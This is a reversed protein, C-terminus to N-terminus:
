ELPVPFYECGLDNQLLSATEKENWSRLVIFSAWEPVNDSSFIFSLGESIGYVVGFAAAGAGLVVWGPPGAVVGITTLAMMTGGAALAGGGAGIVLGAQGAFTGATLHRKLKELEDKGKAYVFVVAYDGKELTSHTAEDVVKPNKLADGLVSKAKDTQFGKSFYDYYLRGSKDPIQNNMLYYPLGTLSFESDIRIFSCVACFTGEDKFLNLKGEGYQDWCYYMEKAMLDKAEKQDKVEKTEKILVNRAPCHIDTPFEIGNIRLQANRLVSGKCAAVEASSESAEVSGKLIVTISFILVAVVSVLLVLTEKEIGKKGLLKM